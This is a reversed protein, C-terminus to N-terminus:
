SSPRIDGNPEGVEALTQSPNLGAGEGQDGAISNRGPPPKRLIELWWFPASQSKQLQSVIPRHPPLHSPGSTGAQEWSWVVEPCGTSECAPDPEGLVGPTTQSLLGGVGAGHRIDPSGAPAAPVPKATPLRAPLPDPPEEQLQLVLM